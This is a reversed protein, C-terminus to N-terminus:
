IVLLCTFEPKDGILKITLDSQDSILLEPNINIEEYGDIKEINKKYIEKEGHFLIFELKVQRTTKVFWDPFGVLFNIEEKIAQKGIIIEIGTKNGSHCFYSQKLSRGCFEKGISIFSNESQWNERFPIRELNTKNAWQSNSQSGSDFFSVKFQKLKDITCQQPQDSIKLDTIEFCDALIPQITQSQTIPHIKYSDIKDKSLNLELIFSNKTRQGTIGGLYMYFNGLSYAILGNNYEEIGQIVHPHHGIIATAGADILNRALEQQNQTEIHSWETGWHLNVIVHDSNKKTEIIDKIINEKVLKFPYPLNSYYVEPSPDVINEDLYSLLGLKIGKTNVIAAQQSNNINNCIGSHKLSHEDLLAVTQRLSEDGYDLIHNNALCVFGINNTLLGEIFFPSSKLNYSKEPIPSGADSLPTELNLCNLDSTQFLESLNEFPFHAMSKANMNMYPKAIIKILSDDKAIYKNRESYSFKTDTFNFKIRNLLSIEPQWSPFYDGCFLIKANSNNM